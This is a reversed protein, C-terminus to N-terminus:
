SVDLAADDFGDQSGGFDDEFEDGFAEMCGEIEAQIILIFCMDM